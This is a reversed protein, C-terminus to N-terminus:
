FKIMIGNTTRHDTDMNDSWDAFDTLGSTGAFAIVMRPYSYIFKAIANDTECTVWHTWGSPPSEGGYAAYAVKWLDTSSNTPAM